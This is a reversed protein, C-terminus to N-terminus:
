IWGRSAFSVTGERGVVIHDLTRVDLLELAERVRQTIARDATSPEPNGSPHNHTLVVAAANCEIAARAIERPYVAAGDITGRFLERFEIVRHRTDLFLCGFVEYPLAALKVRCYQACANPDTIAGTAIRSFLIREAAALIEDDSQAPAPAYATATESKVSNM